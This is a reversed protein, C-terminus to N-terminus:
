EFGSLTTSCLSSFNRNTWSNEEAPIFFSYCRSCIASLVRCFLAFIKRSFFKRYISTCVKRLAKKVGSVSLRYFIWFRMILNIIIIFLAQKFLLHRAITPTKRNSHLVYDPASLRWQKAKQSTSFSSQQPFYYDTGHRLSCNPILLNHQRHFHKLKKSKWVFAKKKTIHNSLSCNYRFRPWM